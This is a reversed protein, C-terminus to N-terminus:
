SPAESPEPEPTEADEDPASAENGNASTPPDADREAAEKMAADLQEVLEFLVSANIAKEPFEKEARTYSIRLVARWAKPDAVMLRDAIELPAMGETLAMGVDAEDFTWELVPVIRIREGALKVYVGAAENESM